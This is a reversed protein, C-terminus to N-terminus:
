SAATLRVSASSRSAPQCSTTISCIHSEGSDGRSASVTTLPGSSTPAPKGSSRVRGTTPRPTRQTDLEHQYSSTGSLPSAVQEAHIPRGAPAM